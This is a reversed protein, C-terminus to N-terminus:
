HAQDSLFDLASLESCLIRSFLQQRLRSGLILMM